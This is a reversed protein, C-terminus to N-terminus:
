RAGPGRGADLGAAQPADGESAWEEVREPWAFRIVLAWALGAAISIMM